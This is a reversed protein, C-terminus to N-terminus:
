LDRIVAERPRSIRVVVGAVEARRGPTVDHKEFLISLFSILDRSRHTQAIRSTPRLPPPPPDTESPIGTPHKYVNRLLRSDRLTDSLTLQASRPRNPGPASRRKC